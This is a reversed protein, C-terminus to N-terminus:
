LVTEGKSELRAYGAPTALGPRDMCAQTASLPKAIRGKEDGAVLAGFSERDGQLVLRVIDADAKM